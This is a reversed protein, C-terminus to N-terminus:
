HISGICISAITYVIFPVFLCYVTFAFWFYAPTKEREIYITRGGLGWGATFPIRGTRIAPRLISFLVALLLFVLIVSCIFRGIAFSGDANKLIVAFM